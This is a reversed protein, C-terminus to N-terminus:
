GSKIINQISDKICNKSEKCLVVVNLGSLILKEKSPYLVEMDQENQSKREKEEQCFKSAKNIIKM